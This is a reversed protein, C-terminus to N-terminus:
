LGPMFIALRDEEHLKKVKQPKFRWLKAIRAQLSFSQSGNQEDHCALEFYINYIDRSLCHALGLFLAHRNCCVLPDM